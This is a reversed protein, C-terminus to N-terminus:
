NLYLKPKLLQINRVANKLAATQPNNNYVIALTSVKKSLGIQGSIRQQIEKKSNLYDPHRGSAPNKGHYRILGKDTTAYATLPLIQSFGPIETNCIGIGNDKLADLVFEM